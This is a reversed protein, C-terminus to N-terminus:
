GKVRPLEHVFKGRPQLYARIFIELALVPRQFGAFNRGCIKDEKREM